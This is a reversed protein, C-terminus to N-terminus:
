KSLFQQHLRPRQWFVEVRSGLSVLNRLTHQGIRPLIPCRREDRASFRSVWSGWVFEGRFVEKGADQVPAVLQVPQVTCGHCLKDTGSDLAFASTSARSM